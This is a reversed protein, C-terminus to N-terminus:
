ANSLQSKIESEFGLAVVQKKKIVHETSAAPPRRAGGGGDAGARSSVSDLCSAPMKM